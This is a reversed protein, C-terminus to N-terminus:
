DYSKELVLSNFVRKKLNYDDIRLSLKTMLRESNSLVDNITTCTESARLLCKVNLYSLIKIWIIDPLHVWNIDLTSEMIESDLFLIEIITFYALTIFNVLKRKFGRQQVDTQPSFKKGISKFRLSLNIHSNM